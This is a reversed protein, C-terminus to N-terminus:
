EHVVVQRGRNVDANFADMDRYRALRDAAPSGMSRRIVPPAARYRGVALVSRLGDRFGQGFAMDALHASDM